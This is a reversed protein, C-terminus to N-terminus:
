VQSILATKRAKPTFAICHGRPNIEGEVIKCTGLANPSKGPVFRVCDDCTTGGGAAIDVYQVAAKNLKTELASAKTGALSIIAIGALAQIGSKIVARRSVGNGRHQDM